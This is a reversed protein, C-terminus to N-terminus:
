KEIIDLVARTYGLCESLGPIVDNEDKEFELGMVGKYNIDKLTKLVKPIDIIGRGLEVSQGEAGIKDVDKLHMDYLRDAYKILNESPDLGLRKVHGIDICLGM